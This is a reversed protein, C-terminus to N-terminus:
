SMGARSSGAPAGAKAFMDGCNPDAIIMGVGSTKV